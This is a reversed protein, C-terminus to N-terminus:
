KKILDNVAKAVASSVMANLPQNRKVAATQLARYQTFTVSIVGFEFAAPVDAWKEKAAKLQSETLGFASLVGAAMMENGWVNM